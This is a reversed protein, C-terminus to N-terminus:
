VRAVTVASSTALKPWRASSNIGPDTSLLPRDLAFTMDDQLAIRTLEEPTTSDLKTLARKLGLMFM